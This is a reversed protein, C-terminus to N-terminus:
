RYNDPHLPSMGLMGTHTHTTDRVVVMCYGHLLLLVLM